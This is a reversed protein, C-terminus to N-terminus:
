SKEDNDSFSRNFGVTRSMRVAEIMRQGGRADGQRPRAISGARRGSSCLQLAVRFTAAEIPRLGTQMSPLCAPALSRPRRGLHQQTIPALQLRIQLGSRLWEAVYGWRAPDICAMLPNLLRM